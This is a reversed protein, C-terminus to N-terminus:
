VGDAIDKRIQAELRMLLWLAWRAYRRVRKTRSEDHAIADCLNRSGALRGLLLTDAKNM